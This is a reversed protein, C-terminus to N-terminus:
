SRRSRTEMPKFGGSVLIFGYYAAKKSKLEDYQLTYNQLIAFNQKTTRQKDNFVLM